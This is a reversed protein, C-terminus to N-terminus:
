IWVLQHKQFIGPIISFAFRSEKFKLPKWYASPENMLASALLAEASLTVKQRASGLDYSLQSKLLSRFQLDEEANHFDADFFKRFEQRWTNTM